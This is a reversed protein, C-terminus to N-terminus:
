SAIIVNVVASLQSSLSPVRQEISQFTKNPLDSRFQFYCLSPFNTEKTNEIACYLAVRFYATKPNPASAGQHGVVEGVLCVISPQSVCAKAMEEGAASKGKKPEDHCLPSRAMFLWDVM